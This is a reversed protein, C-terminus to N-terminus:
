EASPHLTLTSVALESIRKGAPIALAIEQSFPPCTLLLAQSLEDLLRIYTVKLPVVLDAVVHNVASSSSLQRERDALLVVGHLRLVEDQWHGVPLANQGNGAHDSLPDEIGPTESHRETALVAGDM